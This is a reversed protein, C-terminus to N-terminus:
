KLFKKEKWASIEAVCKGRAINKSCGMLKTHQTGMKMRRLTNELKGTEEKVHQNLTHLKIEM